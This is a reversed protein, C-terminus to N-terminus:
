EVRFEQAPLEPLLHDDEHGRGDDAAGGGRGKVGSLGERPQCVRQAKAKIVKLDDSRIQHDHPIRPDNITSRKTQRNEIKSKRPVAARRLFERYAILSM